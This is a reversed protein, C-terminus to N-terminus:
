NKIDIGGFIAVGKLVLIRTSDINVNPGKIRKDGAGGFIPTIDIQINWDAPAQITTGGFIVTADIINIGEALHCQQLNIESGGFAALITGGKLNSSQYIKNCGGFVTVVEILDPNVGTQTEQMSFPFHAGNGRTLLYIGLLVFLLPFWHPLMTFFGIGM